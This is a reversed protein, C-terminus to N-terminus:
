EKIRLTKICNDVYVHLDEQSIEDFIEKAKEITDISKPIFVISFFQPYIYSNNEDITGIDGKFLLEKGADAKLTNGKLIM